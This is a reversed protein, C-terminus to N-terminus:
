SNQVNDLYKEILAYSVSGKPHVQHQAEEIPVWAASDVEHSLRFGTQGTHAFFAIMLQDRKPLSYTGVLELKDVTLGLEEEIERCVCEEASEGPKMYGSVLNGYQHSIYKQRLVAAEGRDNVVLAIVCTSFSDFWPRQCRPCWPTLGEDGIEKEALAEGCVPCFHYRM